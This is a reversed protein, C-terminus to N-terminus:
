SVSGSVVIPRTSGNEGSNWDIVNPFPAITNWM